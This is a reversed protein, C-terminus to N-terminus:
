WDQREAQREATRGEVRTEQRTESREAPTACSVVLGSVSTIALIAGTSPIAMAVSVTTLFLALSSRLSRM